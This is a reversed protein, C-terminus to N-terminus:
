RKCIVPLPTWSGCVQRRRHEALYSCGIEGGPGSGRRGRQRAPRPPARTRLWASRGAPLPPPPAAEASPQAAAPASWREGTDHGDRTGGGGVGHGRGWPHLGGGDLTKEGLLRVDFLPLEALRRLAALLGGAAFEEPPRGGAGNVTLPPGEAGRRPGRQRPPPAPAGRRARRPPALAGEAPPAARRPTAGPRRKRPESSARGRLSPCRPARAGGRSCARVM